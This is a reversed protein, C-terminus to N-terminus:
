AVSSRIGLKEVLRVLDAQIRLRSPDPRRYEDTKSKRVDISYFGTYVVGIWFVSITLVVNAPHVVYVPSVRAAVHGTDVVSDTIDTAQPFLHIVKHQGRNMM